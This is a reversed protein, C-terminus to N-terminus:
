IDKPRQHAGASYGDPPVPPPFSKFWEGETVSSVVRRVQAHVQHAEEMSHRSIAIIRHNFDPVNSKFLGLLVKRQIIPLLATTWLDQGPEPATSVAYLKHSHVNMVESILGGLSRSPKEPNSGRRGLRPIWRVAWSNLPVTDAAAADILHEAQAPEAPGTPPSCDIRSHRPEIPSPAPQPDPPSGVRDHTTSPGDPVGPPGGPSCGPPHGHGGRTPPVPSNGSHEALWKKQTPSLAPLLQQRKWEPMELLQTQERSRRIVVKFDRPDHEIGHQRFKQLLLSLQNPTFAGRDQVYDIFSSIKFDHEVAALRLLANIQRKNKSNMILCRRDRAVKKRSEGRGLPNGSEDVATIRFKTICESGVLLENGNYKNVIKFQYRLDPHECLECTAHSSGLDYMEGSYLWESLAHYLSSQEISLPLLNAESRVKWNL